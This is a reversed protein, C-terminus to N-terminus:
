VGFSFISFNILVFKVCKIFILIIEIFNFVIFIFWFFLKMSKTNICAKDLIGFIFIKKFSYYTGFMHFNYLNLIYTHILFSHKYFYYISYKILLIFYFILKRLIFISLLSYCDRTLNNFRFTFDSSIGSMTICEYFIENIPTISGYKILAERIIEHYYSDYM